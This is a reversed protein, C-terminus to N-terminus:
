NLRKFHPLRIRFWCSAFSFEQIPFNCGSRVYLQFIKQNIFGNSGFRNSLKLFKVMQVKLHEEVAFDELVIDNHLGIGMKASNTITITSQGLHCPYCMYGNEKAVQSIQTHSIM